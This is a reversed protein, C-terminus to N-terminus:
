LNYTSGSFFLLTAVAYPILIIESFDYFMFYLLFMWYLM